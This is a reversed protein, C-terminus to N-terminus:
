KIEKSKTSKKVTKDRQLKVSKQEGDKKETKRKGGGERANINM